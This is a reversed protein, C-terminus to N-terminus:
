NLRTIREFFFSLSGPDQVQGGHGSYHLFLSYGPSKILWNMARLINQGSPYSPSEPHAREDDLLIVMDGEYFGRSM